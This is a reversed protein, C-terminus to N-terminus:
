LYVISEIAEYGSVIGQSEIELVRFKHRKEPLNSELLNRADTSSEAIIQATYEKSM